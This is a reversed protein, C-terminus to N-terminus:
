RFFSFVTSINKIEPNEPLRWVIQNSSNIELLLPQSKDNSHGNWNAILTNGNNYRIVETVFLLAGGNLDATEIKKITEGTKSDIEALFRGEGCSVLWHGGDVLKVSFPTGGCIFSKIFRGNEDLEAITNKGMLPVLFTNQPTKLIQRFQSHVNRIGTDFTLERVPNGNKNLDVIRAPDGCIAVLYDGSKLCTAYHLEEGENVKFDWLVQHNRDILKAGQKYAYLIHGKQTMEVKNCEEKPALDHKWEVVGSFKDVIAIQQWGSGGILLKEERSCSCCLLFLALFIIQKKM